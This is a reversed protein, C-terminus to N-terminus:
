SAVVQGRASWPAQVGSQVRVFLRNAALSPLWKTKVDGSGALVDSRPKVTVSAARLRRQPPSTGANAAGAVCMVM